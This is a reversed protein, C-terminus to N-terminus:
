HVGPTPPPMMELSLPQFFGLYKHCSACYVAMVKFSAAASGLTTMSGVVKGECSCYPCIPKTGPPQASPVPETTPETVSLPMEIVPALTKHFENACERPEDRDHLMRPLGRHGLCEPCREEAM